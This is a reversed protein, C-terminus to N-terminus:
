FSQFVKGKTLFDSIIVGALIIGYSCSNMFASVKFVSTIGIKIKILKAMLILLVGELLVTFVYGPILGLYTGARMSKYGLVGMIGELGGNGFFVAALFIGVASSILNIVFSISLALFFNVAFLKRIFGAEVILILVAILVSYYSPVVASVMFQHAIAPFVLNAYAPGCFMFMWAALAAASIIIRNIKM